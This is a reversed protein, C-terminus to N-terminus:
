SQRCESYPLKWSAFATKAPSTFSILQVCGHQKNIEKKEESSRIRFGIRPLHQCLLTPRLSLNRVHLSFCYSLLFSLLVFCVWENLVEPSVLSLKFEGGPLWVSAMACGPLQVKPFLFFPLSLSCFSPFVVPSAGPLYHDQLANKSGRSGFYQSTKSSREM